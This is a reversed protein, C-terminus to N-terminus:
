FSLSAAIANVQLGRRLNPFLTIKKKEEREWFASNNVLNKGETQPTALSEKKKEEEELIPM